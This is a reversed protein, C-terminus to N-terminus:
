SLPYRQRVSTNDNSMIDILSHEIMDQLYAFGYTTYKTDFPPRDRPGPTWYKDEIKATGDVQM